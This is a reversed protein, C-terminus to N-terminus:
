NRHNSFNDIVIAGGKFSLVLQNSTVGKSKWVGPIANVKTDVCVYIDSRGDNNFDSVVFQPVTSHKDKRNTLKELTELKPFDITMFNYDRVINDSTLVIRLYYYLHVGGNGIFFVSDPKSDGDLDWNGSYDHIQKIEDYSYKLGPDSKEYGKKFSNSLTSDDQFDGKVQAKLCCVFLTFVASFILKM